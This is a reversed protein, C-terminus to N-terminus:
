PNNFPFLHRILVVFIYLSATSEAALCTRMREILWEITVARKLIAVTEKSLLYREDDFSLSNDCERRRQPEIGKTKCKLDDLVCRYNEVDHLCCQVVRDECLDDGATGVSAQGKVFDGFGELDAVLVAPM